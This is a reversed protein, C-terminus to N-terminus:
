RERSIIQRLRHRGELASITAKEVGIPRPMTLAENVRAPAVARFLAM